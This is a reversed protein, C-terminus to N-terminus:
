QPNNKFLCQLWYCSISPKSHPPVCPQGRPCAAPQGWWPWIRHAPQWQQRHFAGVGKWPGPSTLSSPLCFGSGFGKWVGWGRCETGQLQPAVSAQLRPGPKHCSHQVGLAIGFVFRAVDGAKPVPLPVGRREQIGPQGIGAVPLFSAEPLNLVKLLLTLERQEGANDGWCAGPSHWFLCCLLYVVNLCRVSRVRATM